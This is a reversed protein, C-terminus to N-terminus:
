KEDKTTVNIGITELDWFRNVNRSEEDVLMDMEMEENSDM